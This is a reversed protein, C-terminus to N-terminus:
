QCRLSQFVDERRRISHAMKQLVGGFEKARDKGVDGNVALAAGRDLIMAAYRKVPGGKDTNTDFFVEAARMGDITTMTVTPAPGIAHDEVAVKTVLVKLADDVESAAIEPVPVAMVNFSVAGRPFPPVVGIENIELGMFVRSVELGKAVDLRIGLVAAPDYDASEDLQISPLISEITKEASPDYALTVIAFVGKDTAITVCAMQKNKTAGRLRWGWQSGNRFEESKLSGAVSEEMGSRVGAMVKKAGDSTRAAGESTVVVIDGALVAPV